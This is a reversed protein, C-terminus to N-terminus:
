PPGAEWPALGPLEHQEPAGAPLVSKRGVGALSHHEVPARKLLWAPSESLCAASPVQM